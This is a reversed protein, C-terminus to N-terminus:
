LEQRFGQDKGGRKGEGSTGRSDESPGDHDGITQFTVEFPGNKLWLKAMREIAKIQQKFNVTHSVRM